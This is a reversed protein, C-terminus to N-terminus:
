GIELLPSVPEFRGKWLEQLQGHCAPDYVFYNLLVEKIHRWLAWGLTVSLDILRAIQHMLVQSGLNEGVLLSRFIGIIVESWERSEGDWIKEFRYIFIETQPGEYESVLSTYVLTLIYLSQQIHRRRSRNGETFPMCISQYLAADIRSVSDSLELRQADTSSASRLVSTMTHMRSFTSMLEKYLDYGAPLHSLIKEPVGEPPTYM